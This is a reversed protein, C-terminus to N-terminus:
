RTYIGWAFRPHAALYEESFYHAYETIGQLHYGFFAAAFHKMDAAPNDDFIMMHSQGIFSIMGKDTKGLQEFIPVADLDYFNYEDETASIILVPRNVAALGREGFLWAGEPGMPMVALIRDDTIPQWLGDESATISEGAREAFADWKQSLTCIYEIWWEPPLPDMSAAAACKELYFQPDVRAGSLALADYGDSSYGMAGTRSADIMGDLGELPQSALQDLTFVMDLPADVLWFDWGEYSGTGDVGVVVFGYSVMHTAFVDGSRAATLIVPYPAGSIDPDGKSVLTGKYGEPKVAPYWIIVKVERNDRAPDTFTYTRRGTFLLGPQSLDLPVPVPTLTPESITATSAPLPTETPKPPSTPPVTAEAPTATEAQSTCASFICTFILVVALLKDVGM